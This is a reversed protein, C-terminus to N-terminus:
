ENHDDTKAAEEAPTAQVIIDRTMVREGDAYVPMTLWAVVALSLAICRQLRAPQGGGTKKGM